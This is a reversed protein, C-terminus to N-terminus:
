INEVVERVTSVSKHRGQDIEVIGGSSRISETAACGVAVSM